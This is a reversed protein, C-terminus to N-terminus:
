NTEIQYSEHHISQGSRIRVKKGTKEEIKKMLMKEQKRIYESVQPHAKVVIESNSNVIALRKSERLIEYAVTPGSKLVGRGDCYPCPECLLQLLNQKVRKRTMEVLGFESIKLINSRTKGNSVLKSLIQNVKDRNAKKEMDILDIIILGGIDRLRLQYMVEDVAELNTKTITDELNTKGVFKGTNVDIATLAETQDIVLHGGSKLDVTRKLAREIELEIGFAEFIPEAGHYLEVRCEFGPMFKEIFQPLRDYEDKTDVIITDVNTSALDRTARRILDLDRHILAPAKVRDRKALIDRWTQVLMRMDNRLSESPEEAAATRVIFGSGEPRIEEVLDRLRRREGANTIRRSIGIHDVTPMFVLHRGPLSIHSTVRPGKTGIPGKAVQLLIEQGESVLEEIKKSQHRGRRGRRGKNPTAAVGDDDDDDDDDDFDHDHDTDELKFEFHEKLVDSVYLFAARETGINVFAAQMGPLVRVVKGKYINGVIGRESQREIYLEALAGDEILAVRTENGTVNIVLSDSM